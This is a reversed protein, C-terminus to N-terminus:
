IAQFKAAMSRARDLSWILSSMAFHCLLSGSAGHLPSSDSSARGTFHLLMAVNPPKGLPM